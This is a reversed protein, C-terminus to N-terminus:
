IFISKRVVFTACNIPNYLIIGRFGLFGSEEKEKHRKFGKYM